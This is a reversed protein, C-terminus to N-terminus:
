ENYVKLDLMDESKAVVLAAAMDGTTNSMTDFMDLVPYIPIILGLAEIPVGLVQLIVGISVAASGPVGPTGLSLLIITIIVSLINSATVEIGYARALFMGLIILLMCTGDMNITAGLPISFNAVAPSIGLKETCVRMNAPVAASSSCLSFSVLMGERAKSYFKLPNLGALLAILIGYVIMICTCALIQLLAAGILSLFAKLNLDIMVLATICFAAVPFFRTILSTITLFFDNLNEFLEKLLAAREGLIGLSIGSLVALFIIQLISSEFFPALFNSPVIGVITNILSTDVETNVSIQPVEFNGSLAFGPEGPKFVTSIGLALFIAIVTTLFYMCIVKIGVKGLRLVNDFRAFCTVISFFVVPAIILKFANMFVTKVPSLVYFSLGNQAAEPLAFQAILGAIIGLAMAFFTAYDTSLVKRINNM